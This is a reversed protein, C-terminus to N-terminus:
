IVNFYFFLGLYDKTWRMLYCLIKLNDEDINLQIHLKLDRTSIFM